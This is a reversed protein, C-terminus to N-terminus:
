AVDNDTFTITPGKDSPALPKKELVNLALIIKAISGMPVSTQEGHTALVGYGAAGISAQGYAPWALDPQTSADETRSYTSGFTKAELNPIPSFYRFIAFAILIVLILYFYHRKRIRFAM